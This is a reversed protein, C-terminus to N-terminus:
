FGIKRSMEEILSHEHLKEPLYLLMLDRIELPNANSMPITVYPILMKKPQLSLEQIGDAEYHVWFSKIDQFKYQKENIAIGTHDLVIKAKFDPRNLFISFVLASCFLFVSLLINGAWILIALGALVLLCTTTWRQQRSLNSTPYTAEWTITEGM